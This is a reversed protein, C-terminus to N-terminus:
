AFVAPVPNAGFVVAEAQDNGYCYRRAEKACEERECFTRTMPARDINIVFGAAIGHACHRVAQDTSISMRATTTKM